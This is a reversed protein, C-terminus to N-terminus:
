NIGINSGSEGAAICPSGSQTYWDTQTETTPNVLLPNSTIANANNTIGADKIATNNYYCNNTITYVTNVVTNQSSANGTSLVKTHNIFISNKITVTGGVDNPSSYFNFNMFLGSEHGTSFACHNFTCTDTVPGRPRITIFGYCRNFTTSNYNQFKTNFFCDNFISNKFNCYINYSGQTLKGIKCRNLTANNITISSSVSTVGVPNYIECDNWIGTTTADAQGAGVVASQKAQFTCNDFQYTCNNVMAFSTKGGSWCNVNKCYMYSTTHASVNDYYGYVDVNYLYLKGSDSSGFGNNFRSANDAKIETRNNSDSNGYFFWRCNSNGNADFFSITQAGAGTNYNTNDFVVKGICQFIFTTVAAPAFGASRILVGAYTGPLICIRLTQGSTVAQIKESIKSLTAFATAPTLGNNSDSGTASLYYNARMKTSSSKVGPIM